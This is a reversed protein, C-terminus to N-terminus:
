KQLPTANQPYMMLPGHELDNSVGQPQRTLRTGVFETEADVGEAFFPFKRFATIQQTPSWRSRHLVAQCNTHGVRGGGKKYPGGARLVVPDFAPGGIQYLPNFGTSDAGALNSALVQTSRGFLPSTLANTPSGFDPHNFFRHYISPV